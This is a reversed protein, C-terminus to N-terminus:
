SMKRIFMNSLRVVANCGALTYIYAYVAVATSGAPIPIEPSRLTSSQVVAPAIVQTRIIPAVSFQAFVYVDRLNTANVIDLDAEVRIVDGVAVGLTALAIARGRCQIVENANTATIALRVWNGVGGDVRAEISSVAAATTGTARSVTINTPATGTCPSTVTGTTGQMEGDPYLNGADQWDSYTGPSLGLQQLATAIQNGIVISSGAVADHVHDSLMGSLPRGDSYGTDVTPTYTDLYRTRVPRAACWAQLGANYEQLTALQGASMPTGVASGWRAHEGVVVLKRGLAYRASLFQVMNGLMEEATTIGGSIDNTGVRIVDYGDAGNASAYADELAVAGATTLGGHGLYAIESWTFPRRLASLAQQWAGEWNGIQYLSGTHTTTITQDTAPLADPRISLKLWKDASGSQLTMRGGDGIAVWSGATDSPATWRLSADSARYELTGSSGDVTVAVGVGLPDLILGKADAVACGKYWTRWGYRQRSDGIIALRNVVVLNNSFGTLGLGLALSLM